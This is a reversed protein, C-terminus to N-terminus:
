AKLYILKRCIPKVIYHAIAKLFMKGGPLLLILLWHYANLSTTKFIPQLAPIYVVALQMLLSCLVALVLYPNKLIGIEFVSHKESKCDFVYFLQYIVLTTFAMARALVLDGNSLYIALGFVLLTGLGIELGSIIIKAWLGHSFISEKPHRPKRQMIDEDADDVGLALAPLGDTVLNVWLIQIPLLPLPLSFLVGLFMTLVEGVNCALLYRIFKRINDYIARGEEVAAVITAFNDDALVMASAEKTVDTGTKGMAVGIDAEKVAPADNVGDGTMAVVQGNYKLAKVIRLKHKPSVRAYVALNNVRENLEDDSLQDLEKGTIVQDPSVALGLEQAVAQATVQHDGTIMATKIGANKCVGIAKVASPRPPDIMGILGLFTLKSELDEMEEGENGELKRYAVGLVRLAEAAMRDNEQLIKQRADTTLPISNGDMEVNQCLNLIIDPAGKVYVIKSGLKNETNQYVVSMRRRDSDFPIEWVRQERQEIKERLLNGKAAAVLLAGETPDGVIQWNEKKGERAFIGNKKPEKLQANNCLACTKLLRNLTQDSNYDYIENQWQFIGRPEYGQGTIKIIKGSCFIERATMENQTLTGTKDSCIVTACGLTEVATLKRVIANRKIMKQVGLALAVTVIAPLGEPIAAVALSVGTLFMQYIPEGRLIGTLVVLACILLCFVVLWKGLQALRKQLPTEEEEVSQMMGAIKGMESHMGTAVVVARARGTAVATGSFVMNKQDALGADEELIKNEKSVTQSEGTLLSEDIEMNVAELIRADAPIRDGAELEIVDGPVLDRAAISQIKGDRLVTATPAALNKLAEMSKEARFEQVFGLIANLIIIALITIADAIEGLMGSVLAAAILVLVMFDKFQELFIYLPAIKKRQQLLNPGVEDLRIQAEKSSLGQELDSGLISLVKSVDLQFWKIERM